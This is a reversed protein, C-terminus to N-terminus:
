PGVLDLGQRRWHSDIAECAEDFAAERLAQQALGLSWPTAPLPLGLSVLLQRMVAQVVPVAM